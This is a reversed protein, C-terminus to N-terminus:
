YCETPSDSPLMIGTKTYLWFSNTKLILLFVAGQGLKLASIHTLLYLGTIKSKDETEPPCSWIAKVKDGLLTM